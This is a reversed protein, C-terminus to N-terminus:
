MLNCDICAPQGSRPPMVGHRTHMEVYGQMMPSAALAPERQAWALQKADAWIWCSQLAHIHCWCMRPNCVMHRMRIQLLHIAVMFIHELVSQWEPEIEVMDTQLFVSGRGQTLLSSPSCAM